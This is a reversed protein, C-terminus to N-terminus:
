CSPSRTYWEAYRRVANNLAFNERVFAQRWETTQVMGREAATLATDALIGDSGWFDLVKVADTAEAIEFVGPIRYAV